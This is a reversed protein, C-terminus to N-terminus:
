PAKSAAWRRSCFMSLNLWAAGNPCFGGSASVGITMTMGSPLGLSPMGRTGWGLWALFVHSRRSGLPPSRMRPLDRLPVGPAPSQCPLIPPTQGPAEVWGPALAPIMRPLVLVWAPHQLYIHSVALAM